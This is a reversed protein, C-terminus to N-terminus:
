QDSNSIYCKVIAYKEDSLIHKLSFDWFRMLTKFYVEMDDHEVLYLPKAGDGFCHNEIVYRKYNSIANIIAARNKYVVHIRATLFTWLLLAVISLAM